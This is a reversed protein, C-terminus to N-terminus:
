KLIHRNTTYIINALHKGSQLIEKFCHEQCFINTEMIERQVLLEAPFISNCVMIDEEGSYVWLFISIRNWNHAYCVIGSSICKREGNRYDYFVCQDGFFLGTGHMQDFNSQKSQRGSLFRLTNISTKLFILKFLCTFIIKPTFYFEHDVLPIKGLHHM